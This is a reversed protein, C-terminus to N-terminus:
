AATAARVSCSPSPDASAADEESDATGDVEFAKRMAFLACKNDCTLPILVCICGSPYTPRITSPLIRTDLRVNYKPCFSHKPFDSEFQVSVGYQICRGYM